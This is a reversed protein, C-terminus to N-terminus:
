SKNVGHCKSCQWIADDIGLTQEYTTGLNVKTLDDSPKPENCVDCVEYIIMEDDEGFIIETGDPRTIRLYGM